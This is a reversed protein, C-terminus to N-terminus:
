RRGTCRRAHKSKNRALLSAGCRECTAMARGAVTGQKQQKAGPTLRPAEPGSSTDRKERNGKLSEGVVPGLFAGTISMASCIFINLLGPVGSAFLGYFTHGLLCWSVLCTPCFQAPDIFTPFTG